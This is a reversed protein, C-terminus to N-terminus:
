YKNYNLIVSYGKKALFQVINKGIGRSGGTVLIVKKNNVLKEMKLIVGNKM